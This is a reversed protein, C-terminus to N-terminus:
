VKVGAESARYLCDVMEKDQLGNMKLLIYGIKGEKANQIEQKILQIFAPIMNFGPVMGFRDPERKSIGEPPCQKLLIFKCYM